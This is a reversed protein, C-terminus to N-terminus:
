ALVPVIIKSACCIRYTVAHATSGKVILSLAEQIYEYKRCANTNKAFMLGELMCWGKRYVCVEQMYTGADM